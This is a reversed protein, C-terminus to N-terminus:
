RCCFLVFPEDGLRKVFYFDFSVSYQIREDPVLLSYSYENFYRRVAVVVFVKFDYFVTHVFVRESKKM